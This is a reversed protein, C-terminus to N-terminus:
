CEWFSLALKPHPVSWRRTAAEKERSKRKVARASHTARVSSGTETLTAHPGCVGPGHVIRLSRNFPFALKRTLGLYVESCKVSGSCFTSDLRKFFLLFGSNICLQKAQHKGTPM